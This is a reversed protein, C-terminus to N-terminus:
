VTRVPRSFAPPLSFGVGCPGKVICYIWIDLNDAAKTQKQAAAEGAIAAPPAEQSLRFDSEKGSVVM